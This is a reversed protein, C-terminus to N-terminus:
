LDAINKEFEVILKQANQIEKKLKEISEDIVKLNKHNVLLNKAMNIKRVEEEESPDLEITSNLGTFM